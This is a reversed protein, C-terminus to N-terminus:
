ALLDKRYQAVMQNIEAICVTKETKTTYFNYKESMPETWRNAEIDEIITESSTLHAINEAVLKAFKNWKSLLTADWEEIEPLGHITLWGSSRGESFTRVHEGFIEQAESEIDGWFTQQATEFAFKLARDADKASCKFREVIQETTPLNYVKVNIAPNKTRWNDASHFVVDSKKM